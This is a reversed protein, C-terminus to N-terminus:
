DDEPLGSLDLDNVDISVAVIRNIASLEVSTTAAEFGLARAIDILTQLHDLTTTDTITLTLDTM